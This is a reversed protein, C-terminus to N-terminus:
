ELKQGFKMRLTGAVGDYHFQAQRLVDRGLLGVLYVPRGEKKLDLYESHKELEPVGQVEGQWEFSQEDDDTLRIRLRASFFLVM